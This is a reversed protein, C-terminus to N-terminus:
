GLLRVCCEILEKEKVVPFLPLVGGRSTGQIAKKAWLVYMSVYMRDGEKGLFGARRGREIDVNVFAFILNCFLYLIRTRAFLSGSGCGGPSRGLLEM